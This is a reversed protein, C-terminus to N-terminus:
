DKVWERKLVEAGKSLCKRLYCASESCPRDGNCFEDDKKHGCLGYHDPVWLIM